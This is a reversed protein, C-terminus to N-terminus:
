TPVCRERWEHNIYQIDMRLSLLRSSLISTSLVHWGDGDWWILIRGNMGTWGLLVYGMVHFRCPRHVARRMYTHLTSHVHVYSCYRCLMWGMLTCWWWWWCCCFFCCCCYRYWFCTMTLLYYLSVRLDSVLRKHLLEGEGARVPYNDWSIYIKKLGEM